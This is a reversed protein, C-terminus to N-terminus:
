RSASMYDRFANIMNKEKLIFATKSTGTNSMIVGLDEKIYLITNNPIDKRFYITLNDYTKEM